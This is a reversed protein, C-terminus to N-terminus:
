QKSRKIRLICAWKCELYLIVKKTEESHFFISSFWQGEINQESDSIILKESNELWYVESSCESGLWVDSIFHKLFITSQFCNAIKAFIKM